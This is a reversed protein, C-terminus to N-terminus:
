QIFNNIFDDSYKECYGKGTKKINERKPEIIFIFIFSYKFKIKNPDYKNNIFSNYNVTSHKLM